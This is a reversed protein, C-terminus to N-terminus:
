IKKGLLRATIHILDWPGGFPPSYAFDMYGIEDLRAGYWLAASLINIKKVPDKKGVAQAGLLMGTSRDAILKLGTEGDERSALPRAAPPAWAVASVPSFGHRVAEEESLGTAALELDFFKFSQAGVIGPFTAPKGGINQGAIRGQKNAIDGLPYYLWRKAVRHYVECCDGVASIGDQPTRQSLNVRIAGADGLQLGLARALVTNPRIGIAILVVDTEITGRDTIVRLGGSETKEIASAHTDIHFAINKETFTRFVGSLLEPDWRKIAVADRQIIEVEIGLNSLAESMEMAIFGAGLIVAKRCHRQFICAKMDLADQLTRLTFVGELEQGPIGPLIAEAGTALVLHDYALSEGTSLRVTQRGIDVEDARTKLRVEIGSKEFAEPTRAILDHPDKIVDGIYYPM